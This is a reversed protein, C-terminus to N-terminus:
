AEKIQAGFNETIFKIADDRTVRHSKGIRAPRIRRRKIRFGPRELTVMVDMGFIGLEPVYKTGPIEIHEKIGFAFNGNEDFSSRKVSNNIAELGRKLFATAKEGRLTTLCTIPEGERISFEKLTMKAQKTCPKQGTLDTIVKKAKELMDGSKGVGIHVTVKALKITRMPNDPVTETVTQM